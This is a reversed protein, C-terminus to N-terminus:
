GHLNTKEYVRRGKRWFGAGLIRIDKGRLTFRVTAIRGNVSGICFLREEELSHTDDKALIRWPDAFAKAADEFGLGHKRVNAKEKVGNWVFAGYRVDDNM